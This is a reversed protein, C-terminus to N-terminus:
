ELESAPLGFGLRSAQLSPDDQEGLMPFGPCGHSCAVGRGGGRGRIECMM